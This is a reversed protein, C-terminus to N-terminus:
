IKMFLEDKNSSILEQWKDYIALCLRMILVLDVFFFLNTRQAAGGKGVVCSSDMLPSGKALSSSSSLALAPYQQYTTSPTTGCSPPVRDQSTSTKQSSLRGGFVGYPSINDRNPNIAFSITAVRFSSVHVGLGGELGVLRSCVCGFDYKTV